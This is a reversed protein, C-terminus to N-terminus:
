DVLDWEPAIPLFEPLESIGHQLLPWLDLHSSEIQYREAAREDQGQLPQLFDLWAFALVGGTIGPGGGTGLVWRSRSCRRVPHVCSPTELGATDFPARKKMISLLWALAVRLCSQRLLARTRRPHGRFTLGVAKRPSEGLPLAM